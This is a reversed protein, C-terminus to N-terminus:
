TNRPTELAGWEMSRGEHRLTGEKERAREEARRKGKNFETKLEAIHETQYEERQKRGERPSRGTGQLARGKGEPKEDREGETKEEKGHARHAVAGSLALPLFM